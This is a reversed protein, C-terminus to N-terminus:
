RGAKKRKVWPNSRRHIEALNHLTQADAWYWNNKSFREALSLVLKDKNM